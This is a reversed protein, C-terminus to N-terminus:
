LARRISGSAPGLGEAPEPDLAPLDGFGAFPRALAPEIATPQAEGGAEDIDAHLDTLGALPVLFAQARRPRAAAAPPTVDIIMRGSVSVGM